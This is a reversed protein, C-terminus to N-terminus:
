GIFNLAHKANQEKYYKINELYNLIDNKYLTSLGISVDDIMLVVDDLGFPKDHVFIKINVIGSFEYKTVMSAYYISWKSIRDPEFIKSLKNFEDENLELM